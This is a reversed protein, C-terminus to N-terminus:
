PSNFLLIQQLNLYWSQLVNDVTLTPQSILMNPSKRNPHNLHCNTSGVSLPLHGTITACTCSNSKCNTNHKLNMITVQHIRHCFNVMKMVVIQTTKLNQCRFYFMSAFRTCQWYNHWAMITNLNFVICGTLCYLINCFVLFYITVCGNETSVM